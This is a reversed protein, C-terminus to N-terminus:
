YHGMKAFGYVALLVVFGQWVFHSLMALYFFKMGEKKWSLMESDPDETWYLFLPHNAKIHYLAEAQAVALRYFERDEEKLLRLGGNARPNNWEGCKFDTSLSNGECCDLGVAWFDYTNLSTKVFTANNQMTLPVVCYTRLNQFGMAYRMDLTTNEVFKIRGGDMIQEGKMRSVDVSAYSNLNLYDFYPDMFDHFIMNGYFTGVIVAVVFSLFFFVTWSPETNIHSVFKKQIIEHSQWGIALAILILVGILVWAQLPSHYHLHFTMVSMACCFIGWPIFMAQMVSIYNMRQRQIRSYRANEDVSKKANVIGAEKTM